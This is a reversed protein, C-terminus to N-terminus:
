GAKPKVVLQVFTLSVDGASATIEWCGETPFVLGSSWFDTDAPAGTSGRNIATVRLPPARADLRRGAIALEGDVQKAWWPFKMGVSGDPEVYGPLGLVVGYPWLATWMRGNGLHAPSRAEGPPTDGNPLTVPCTQSAGRSSATAVASTEEPKVAQREADSTCSVGALALALSASTISGRRM